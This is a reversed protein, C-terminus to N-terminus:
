DLQRSMLDGQLDHSRELLDSVIVQERCSLETNQLKLLCCVVNTINDQAEVMLDLKANKM